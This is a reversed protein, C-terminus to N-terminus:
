VSHQARHWHIMGETLLIAIFLKIFCVKCRSLGKNLVKMYVFVKLIFFETHEYIKFTPISLSKSTATLTFMIYTKPVFMDNKKTHVSQQHQQQASCGFRCLPKSLSTFNIWAVGFLVLCYCFLDFREWYNILSRVTHECKGTAQSICKSMCTSTCLSYLEFHGFHKRGSM